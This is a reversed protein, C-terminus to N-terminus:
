NRPIEDCSYRFASVFRFRQGALDHPVIRRYHSSHPPSLSLSPGIAPWFLDGAFQEQLLSRWRARAGGQENNASTWGSIIRKIQAICEMRADIGASSPRSYNGLHM